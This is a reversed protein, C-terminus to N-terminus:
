GLLQHSDVLIAEDAPELADPAVVTVGPGSQIYLGDEKNFSNENCLSSPRVAM